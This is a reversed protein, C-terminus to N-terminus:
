PIYPRTCHKCFWRRMGKPQEKLTQNSADWNTDDFAQKTLGDKEQWYHQVKDEMVLEHVEQKSFKALKTGKWYIAVKENQLKHAPRPTEKHKRWFKKAKKM